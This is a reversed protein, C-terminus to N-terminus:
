MILWLATATDTRRYLSFACQLLVDTEPFPTEPCSLVFARIEFWEALCYLCGSRMKTLASCSWFLNIWRVVTFAVHTFFLLFFFSWNMFWIYQQCLDSYVVPPRQHRLFNSHGSFLWSLKCFLCTRRCIYFVSSVLPSAEFVQFDASLHYRIVTM